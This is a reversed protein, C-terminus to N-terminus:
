FDVDDCEFEDNLADLRDRCDSIELLPMSRRWMSAERTNARDSVILGPRTDIEFSYKEWLYSENHRRAAYIM